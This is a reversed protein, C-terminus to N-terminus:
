DLCAEFEAIAKKNYEYADFKYENPVNGEIFAKMGDYIDEEEMGIVLQGNEYISDAVTSFNSVIVPLGLTRAELIVMPQGEYLSPLIFCDCDSMLGFPNNLNGTLIVKGTLKLKTILRRLTDRLPGDGIIYLKTNNHESNIKSFAKILSQYNKEGSLRGMTVFNIEDTKPASIILEDNDNEGFYMYKNNDIIIYQKNEVGALVRDVDILNHAYSFRDYTEETALDARNNIMTSKSCSVYRNLIPYIKFISDLNKKFAHKVDTPRNYESMLVSHMWIIQKAEKQTCYLNVYFSTFGSFNVICDFKVDGFCRKFEANYFYSPYYESNDIEVIANERCYEKKAEDEVNIISPSGRYVVRIGEPMKDTYTSVFDKPGIAYFTIDYKDSDINKLLNLASSSIGNFKVIDTHILIKKKDNKLSITHSEDGFFIADVVRKCVNGDDNCVFKEVANEYKEYDFFNKYNEIDGAWEAVEDLSDTVPGPLNDVPFYLGRTKKYEELDPVYFLIPRKTVLFDFFISSYDSILIDTIGLLENTDVTAPIFYDKLLNKEALTKYVIQHPKFLVQYKDKDICSYLRDVVADYEELNINPNGYKEGRWTPAYLVLKKNPDYNVGLKNLNEAAKNKDANFTSDIRPYGTEIIKGEFIGDLKYSYKFNDTTFKVPSIIYDTMLFNRIVNAIEVNGNPVDYGLHKLPIGHWTNIVVQGDKKSFYSQWTVNNVLYKAKSLYEFYEDTFPEIFKVNKNDKFESIILNRFAGQELVWVHTFDSFREDNLLYRFLASPNCTIGRGYFAEYLITKDDIDYKKRADYYDCRTKYWPKTDYKYKAENIYSQLVEDM